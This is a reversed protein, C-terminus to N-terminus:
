LSGIWPMSNRNGTSSSGGTKIGAFCSSLGKELTKELVTTCYLCHSMGLTLRIGINDNIDGPDCSSHCRYDGEYNRDVNYLALVSSETHNYDDSFTFIQANDQKLANIAGHFSAFDWTFHCKWKDEVDPPALTTCTLNVDDGALPKLSSIALTTM